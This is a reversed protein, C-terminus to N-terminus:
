EFSRIVFALAYWAGAALMTFVGAIFLYVLREKRNADKSSWAGLAGLWAYVGPQRRPRALPVLGGDGLNSRLRHRGGSEEIGQSRM